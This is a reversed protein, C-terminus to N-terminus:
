EFVFVLGLLTFLFTRKVDLSPVQDIVLLQSEFHFCVDDTKLGHISKIVHLLFDVQCIMDGVLTLFASTIAKTIVPHKALLSLYRRSTKRRPRVVRMVFKCLFTSLEAFRLLGHFCVRVMEEVAVVEVVVVEVVVVLGEPAPAELVVVQEAAARFEFLAFVLNCLGSGPVVLCRLVPPRRRRYGAGFIRSQANLYSKPARCFSALPRRLCSKTILNALHLAAM